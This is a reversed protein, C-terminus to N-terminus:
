KIARVVYPSAYFNHLEENHQRRWGGTMEKRKCEFRRRLVV